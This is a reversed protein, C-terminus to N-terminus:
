LHLGDPHPLADRLEEIEGAGTAPDCRGGQLLFGPFAARTPAPLRMAFSNLRIASVQEGRKAAEALSRQKEVPLKALADIEAGKDLSTHRLHHLLAAIAM